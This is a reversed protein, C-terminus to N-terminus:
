ATPRVVMAWLGVLILAIAALIAWTVGQALLRAAKSDGSAVATRMRSQLLGVGVITVGASALLAGMGIHIWISTDFPFGGETMLWGGALLVVLAAPMGIRLDYWRQDRALAVLDAGQARTGRVWIVTTAVSGGLWLTAGLIHALLLFQYLSM